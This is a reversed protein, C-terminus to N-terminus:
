PGPPKTPPSARRALLRLLAGLALAAGGTALAALVVVLDLAAEAGKVAVFGFGVVAMLLAAGSETAARVLRELDVPIKDADCNLIVAAAVPSRDNGRLYRGEEPPYRAHPDVKLM